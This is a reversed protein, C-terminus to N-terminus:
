QSPAGLTKSMSASEKLVYQKFGRKVARFNQKIRSIVRRKKLKGDDSFANMAAIANLDYTDGVTIHFKNVLNKFQDFTFLVNTTEKHTKHPTLVGISSMSIENPDSDILVLIPTDPVSKIVKFKYHGNRNKIIMFTSINNLIDQLYIFFRLKKFDNDDWMDATILKFNEQTIYRILCIAILLLNLEPFPTKLIVRGFENYKSTSYMYGFVLYLFTGLKLM